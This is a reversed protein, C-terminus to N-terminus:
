RRSRRLAFAEAAAFFDFPEEAPRFFPPEVFDRPAESEGRDVTFDVAFDDGAAFDGALPREADPLGVRLM